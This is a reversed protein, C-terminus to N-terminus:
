SLRTGHEDEPQSDMRGMRPEDKAFTLENKVDLVGAVNEVADESMRKTLRSDVKGKLFVIGDKVEVEIHSADVDYSLYLAECVDEWIRKDSRVYDKPGKGIHGVEPNFNDRDIKNRTYIMSAKDVNRELEEDVIPRLDLPESSSNSNDHHKKTM